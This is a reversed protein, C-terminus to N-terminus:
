QTGYEAGPQQSPAGCTSAGLVMLRQLGAMCMVLHLMLIARSVWFAIHNTTASLSNVLQYDHIPLRGHPISMVAPKCMSCVKGSHSLQVNLIEGLDSGAQVTVSDTLGQQFRAANDPGPNEIVHVASGHEGNLTVQVSESTGAGPKSGTTIAV